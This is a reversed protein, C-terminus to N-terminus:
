IAKIEHKTRMWENGKADRVIYQGEVVAVIIGEFADRDGVKRSRVKTGIGFTDYPASM